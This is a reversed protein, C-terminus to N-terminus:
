GKKRRFLNAEIVFNGEDTSFPICIIPGPTLQTIKVNKGLIMAPTAMDFSYGQESLEGKAGGSIMNTLEGVADIVDQNIEKFTSYLMRGVISLITKEEFSLVMSGSIEQSALGVIGTVDGYTEKATKLSPKGVKVETFAMTQIVNIAANIFPNVINADMLIREGCLDRTVLGDNTQGSIDFM